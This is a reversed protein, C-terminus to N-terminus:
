ALAALVFAIRWVVEEDLRGKGEGCGLCDRQWGRSLGACEDLGLVMRLFIFLLLCHARVAQFLYHFACAIFLM